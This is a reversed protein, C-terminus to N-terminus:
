TEMAAIRRSMITERDNKHCLSTHDFNGPM